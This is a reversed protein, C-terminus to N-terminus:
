LGMEGHDQDQASGYSNVGAQHVQDTDMKTYTFRKHALWLYQLANKSWMWNEKQHKFSAGWGLTTKEPLAWYHGQGAM